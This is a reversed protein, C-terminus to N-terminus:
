SWAELRAAIKRLSRGLLPFSTLMLLLGIGIAAINSWRAEFMLPMINAFIGAELLALRAVKQTLLMSSIEDVAKDQTAPDDSKKFNPLQRFMTPAIFAVGFLIIASAAAITSILKIPGNLESWDVTTAIMGAFFLAGVTMAGAMAQGTRIKRTAIENQNTTLM